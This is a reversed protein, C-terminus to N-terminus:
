LIPLFFPLSSLNANPLYFHYNILFIFSSSIFILQFSHWMCIDELFRKEDQFMQELWVLESMCCLSFPIYSSPLPRSLPPPDTIDELLLGEKTWRALLEIMLSHIVVTQHHHHHHCEGAAIMLVAFNMRKLNIENM